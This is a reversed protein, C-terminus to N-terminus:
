AAVKVDSEDGGVPVLQVIVQDAAVSSGKKVLLSQIVGQRHSRIINQMKMAEVICLEQGDEVSDGEKVAYSMVTGPMPSLVVDTTDKKPPEHMKKSLEFERETEVLVPMNAGYMQVNVEGTSEESIV